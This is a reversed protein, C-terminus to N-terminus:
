RGRARRLVRRAAGLLAGPRKWQQRKGPPVGGEGGAGACGAAGPLTGTRGRPLTKGARGRQSGSRENWERAGCPLAPKWGAEDGREAAELAPEGGGDKKERSGGGGCRGVGCGGGDSGDAPFVVAGGGADG